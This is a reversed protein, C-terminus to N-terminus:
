PNNQAPYRIVMFNRLALSDASSSAMQGRFSVTLAQSTDESSAGTTAAITLTTGYTRSDWLQDTGFISFDTQGSMRSESAIASRAVVTTSTGVRVEGSFGSSTGTHALQFRVELRDGSGLVGAPITCTGLQTIATSSTVGGVSSCVVQSGTLTGLPNAPDGFRYNALLQDGSQPTSAVFFTITSGSLTYDVAPAMRLGNRFLILSSAPDPSHTLVFTTNTGNL